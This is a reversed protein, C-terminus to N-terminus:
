DPLSGRHACDHKRGAIAAKGSEIRLYLAMRNGTKMCASVFTSSRNASWGPSTRVRRWQKWIGTNGTSTLTRTTERPPEFRFGDSEPVPLVVVRREGAM